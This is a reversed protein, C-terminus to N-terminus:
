IREVTAYRYKSRKAVTERTAWNTRRENTSKLPCFFYSEPRVTKRRYFEPQPPRIQIYFLHSHSFQQNKANEPGELGEGFWGLCTSARAHARVCGFSSYAFLIWWWSWCWWSCGRNPLYVRAGYAIAGRKPQCLFFVCAKVQLDRIDSSLSFFSYLYTRARTEVTSLRKIINANLPPDRAAAYLTGPVSNYHLSVVISIFAHGRALSCKSRLDSSCGDVCPEWLPDITNDVWSSAM